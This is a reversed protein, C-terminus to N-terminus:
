KSVLTRYKKKIALMVENLALLASAKTNLDLEDDGTVSGVMKATLGDRYLGKYLNPNIKVLSRLLKFIRDDLSSAITEMKSYWTALDKDSASKSEANAKISEVSFADCSDLCCGLAKMLGEEGPIAAYLSALDLCLLCFTPENSQSNRSFYNFASSYHQFAQSLKKRTNIENLQCTWLKSFTLALQYNTAAAQHFNGSQQYIELARTMPSTISREEGPSLRMVQFVVPSNGGGLLSQRRRVGLVLYTAALSDTVMDWIFPDSERVNLDKHAMLLQDVAQQLCDEAHKTSSSLDQKTAFSSNARLKYSACLNCRILALNRMDQCAKFSELGEMFWFEASDLLAEAASNAVTRGGQNGTALLTRLAALLVKGTENCADGLRQRLNVLVFKDCAPDGEDLSPLTYQFSTIARSYSICSAVLVRRRERQLVREKDLLNDAAENNPSIIASLSQLHVKGKSKERLDNLQVMKWFREINVDHDDENNTKRNNIFINEVDRLIQIVDEGSTHGLDRCLDDSAFSRAFHGCHELLWFYQLQLSVQLAESEREYGSSGSNNTNIDEYKDRRTIELGYYDLLNVADVLRRAASRLAQMASSSYYNEMHHETLRLFINVLKYNMGFLQMMMAPSLRPLQSDEEEEKEQLNSGGEVHITRQDRPRQRRRTKMLSAEREKRKERHLRREELDRHLLPSLSKIGSTLHDEAKNLADITVSAYPQENQCKEPSSYTSQPSRKASNPSKVSTANTTITTSISTTMNNIPSPSPSLKPAYMKKTTSTRRHAAEGRGASLTEDKNNGPICSLYTDAIHERVSAVMSEHANGDIDMLDQLLDLTQQYLSRQRDRINRKHSELISSPSYNELHCLRLAFRFSMTALWWIWKKQGRTSISSVDYLHINHQQQQQQQKNQTQNDNTGDNDNIETRLLYTAHNRTCNTKLFRMLAGANMEMIEPSFMDRSEISGSTHGGANTNTNVSQRQENVPISTDLTSPHLMMSPIAQTALLKVSQILGKEQLCLALQPVNAMLNDLYADLVVSAPSPCNDIDAPTTASAGDCGSSHNSPSLSPPSSEIPLLRGFPGTFPVICTQLPPLESLSRKHKVATTETDCDDGVNNNENKDDDSNNEQNQQQQIQPNQHREKQLLAQAYSKRQSVTSKMNDMLTNKQQQQQQQQQQFTTFANQLFQLDEIRVAIGETTTDTSSKNNKNSHTTTTPRVILADHGVLLNLDQCNWKIYERPATPPTLLQTTTTATTTTQERNYYSERDVISEQVEAIISSLISKHQQNGIADDDAQIITPSLALTLSPNKSSSKISANKEM